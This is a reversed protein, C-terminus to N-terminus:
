SEAIKKHQSMQYIPIITKIFKKIPLAEFFENALFINPGNKLKSLSNLWIIKHSNLKKKMQDALIEASRKIARAYGDFVAICTGFM